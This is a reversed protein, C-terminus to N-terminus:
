FTGRATAGCGGPTCSVALRPAAKRPSNLLLLVGGGTLLVAGAGALVRAVTQRGRMADFHEPYERQPASEAASEASRRAVEFALAAALSAGGAGLVLWPASGFRPAEPEPNAHAAPRNARTDSPATTAAPGPILQFAVDLPTPPELDIDRSQDRYGSARLEIHHPGPPLEITVPTSGVARQDIFVTAGEPSSLVSLQQVGRAALQAALESVRAKVQAGNAARPERRLYDRYWRLASSGNDLREFALAINFSLAASPALADAELFARVADPYRHERFATVGQEFRGKAESRRAEARAEASPLDAHAPSVVATTFAM